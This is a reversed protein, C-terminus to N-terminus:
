LMIYLGQKIEEFNKADVKSKTSTRCQVLGMHQMLYKAWDKSLQFDDNCHISAFEDCYVTSIAITLSTNVAGGHERILNLYAWVKRLEGWTFTAVGEKRRYRLEGPDQDETNQM